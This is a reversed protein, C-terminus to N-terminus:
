RRTDDGPTSKPNHRSKIQQKEETHKRGTEVCEHERTEVNGDQVVCVSVCVCVREKGDRANQKKVRTAPGGLRTKGAHLLDQGGDSAQRRFVQEEVRGLDTGRASLLTREIEEECKHELM